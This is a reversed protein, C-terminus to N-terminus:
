ERCGCGTKEASYEVFKDRALVKGDTVARADQNGLTQV